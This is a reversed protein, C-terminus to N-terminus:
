IFAELQRSTWYIIGSTIILICQIISAVGPWTDVGAKSAYGAVLVWTAGGLAGFSILYSLFLFTRSRCGAGEDYVSNENLDRKDVLNIMIIAIVAVIGPLFHVFPVKTGAMASLVCADVWFWWGAGFVAGALGPGYEKYVSFWDVSSLGFEM